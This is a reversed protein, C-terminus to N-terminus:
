RWRSRPAARWRRRSCSSTRTTRRAAARGSGTSRSRSPAARRPERRERRRARAAVIPRGLARRPASSCGRRPTRALAHGALAPDAGADLRVGDHEARSRTSCPRSRTSRRRRAPRLLARRTGPVVNFADGSHLVTPVATLRHPAARTTARRRGGPRGRRARAARQARPGAGLRLAGLARARRGHDHGGGQPARRRRRRRGAHARRGRLVPVRGLGRLAAVHAFPATRWEEDCVLSCRSRPTTAAPAPSRACRRRALARRRGEHRRHGLRRAQEGERALPQHAAHAVVTDLHGLLLVRTADRDRTLRAILDPAHDPSSCPVREIERRTPCCRPASPRASRPGACTARPRPSASSRRSSASRARARDRGSRAQM